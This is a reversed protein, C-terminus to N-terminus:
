SLATMLPAAEEIPEDLFRRRVDVAHVVTSDAVQQRVQADAVAGLSRVGVVVLWVLFAGFYSWIWPNGLVNLRTVFKM